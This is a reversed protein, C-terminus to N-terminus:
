ALNQPHARASMRITYICFVLMRIRDDAYNVDIRNARRSKPQTTALDYYCSTPARSSSNVAM